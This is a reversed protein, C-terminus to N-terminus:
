NGLEGRALTFVLPNPCVPQESRMEDAGKRYELIAKAVAASRSIGERCHVILRDCSLGSVFERLGKLDERRPLPRGYPIGEDDYEEWLDNFKLRLVAAVCSADPFPVDKEEKSTISIVATPPGAEAALKLARELSCIEILM